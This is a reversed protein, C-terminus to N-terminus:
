LSVFHLEFQVVFRISNTGREHYYKYNPMFILHVLNSGCGCERVSEEHTTRRESFM